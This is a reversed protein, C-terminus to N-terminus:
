SGGGRQVLRGARFSAAVDSHGPGDDFLPSGDAMGPFEIINRHVSLAEDGIRPCAEKIRTPQMEWELYGAKTPIFGKAM